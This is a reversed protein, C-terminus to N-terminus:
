ARSRRDGGGEGEGGNSVVIHGVARRWGHRSSAIGTVVAVPAGEGGGEGQTEGERM